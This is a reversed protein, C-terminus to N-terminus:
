RVPRCKCWEACVLELRMYAVAHLLMYLICSLAGGQYVGIVNSKADSLLVRGDACRVQVRQMHDVLYNSFWKTAIGYLPLKELLKDHPVVDFCKSLDLLVLICIEGNDMAQLALDTVM